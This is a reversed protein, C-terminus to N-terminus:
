TVDDAGIRGITGDDDEDDEAVMLERALHLSLAAPIRAGDQLLARMLPNRMRQQMRAAETRAATSATRAGQCGPATRGAFGETAAGGVRKSAARTSSAGWAGSGCGAEAMAGGQAGRQVVGFGQAARCCARALLRGSM